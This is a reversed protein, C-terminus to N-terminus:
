SSPVWWCSSTSRSWACMRGSKPAEPDPQFFFGVGRDLVDVHGAIVTPGFPDGVYSSGDWWGVM